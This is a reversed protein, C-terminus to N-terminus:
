LKTWTAGNDWTLTKGNMTVTYMGRDDTINVALVNGTVTGHFPGRNSYPGTKGQAIYMDVTSAGTKVISDSGDNYKGAWADAPSSSSSAAGSSSSAPVAGSSVSSGSGSYSSGTGAVPLYVPTATTPHSHGMMLFIAVLVVVVIAVSVGVVVSTNM